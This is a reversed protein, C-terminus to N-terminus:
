TAQVKEHIIRSQSAPTQRSSQLRSVISNKIALYVTVVKSKSCKRPVKGITGLVLLLLLGAELKTGRLGAKRLHSHQYQSDGNRSHGKRIPPSSSPPSISPGNGFGNIQKKTAIQGDEPMEQKATIKAHIDEQLNRKRRIHCILTAALYAALSIGVLLIEIFIHIIGRRGLTTDLVFSSSPNKLFWLNQGSGSLSAAMINMLDALLLTLTQAVVMGEGTSLPCSVYHHVKWIAWNGIQKEPLRAMEASFKADM